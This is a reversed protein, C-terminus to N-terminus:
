LRDERRWRCTRCVGRSPSLITLSELALGSYAM